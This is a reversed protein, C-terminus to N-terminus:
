RLQRCMRPRGGFVPCRDLLVFVALPYSVTWVKFLAFIDSAVGLRDSASFSNIAAGLAAWHEPTYNVRYFGQVHGRCVRTFLVCM